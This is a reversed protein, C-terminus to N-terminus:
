PQYEFAGIDAFDPNGAGTNPTDPDDVRLLGDFDYTPAADGNAADICPSGAQLRFDSLNVDAFLPDADVNGTGVFGGQVLSYSVPLNPNLSTIQSPTNAWLITNIVEAQADSLSLAGGAGSNAYFTCNTVTLEGPANLAVASGGQEASNDVFVANRLRAVGGSVMVAGGSGSANGHFFSRNLTLDAEEAMLAGGRMANGLNTTNAVFTCGVIATQGGLLTVAGGAQDAYNAEFRCNALALYSDVAQLGGGGLPSYGHTVTVGDLVAGSVLSARVVHYVMTQSNPDAGSWVTPNVLWDRQDRATEDGAFGGYVAVNDRLWLSDDQGTQYIHYTGAGVWVECGGRDGAADVGSQVDAFATAWSRGDRVGPIPAQSVYVTCHCESPEGTCQWGDLVQCAADCGDSPDANGDDCGEAPQVLGDGCTHCGTTDLACTATCQLQGDPHGTATLCTEGGFADGDCSEGEDLIGNGCPGSADPVPGNNSFDV